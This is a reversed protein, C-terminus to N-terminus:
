TSLQNKALMQRKVASSVGLSHSFPLFRLKSLIDKSGAFRSFPSLGITTTHIVKDEQELEAEIKENEENM